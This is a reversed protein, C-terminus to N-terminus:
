ALREVVIVGRHVSVQFSYFLTVIWPNESETLIDREARIHSVQNKTIMAEKLMSKMAYIERAHRDTMRVLRVEGFAGRGIINLPEFDEIKLRRKSDRTADDEAEQYRERYRQKQEESIHMNVLQQELSARRKEEESKEQDLKAYKAGL